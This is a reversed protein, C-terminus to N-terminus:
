NGKCNKVKEYYLFACVLCINLVFTLLANLGLISAVDKYLIDAHNEGPVQVSIFLLHYEKGGKTFKRQYGRVDVGISKKNFYFTDYQTRMTEFLSKRNVHLVSALTATDNMTPTLAKLNSDYLRMVQNDMTNEYTVFELIDTINNDENSVVTDIMEVRAKFVSSNNIDYVERLVRGNIWTTALLIVIPLLLLYAMYKKILRNLKCVGWKCKRTMYCM